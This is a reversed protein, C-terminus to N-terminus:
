RRIPMRPNWSQIPNLAMPNARNTNTTRVTCEMETSYSGLVTCSSPERYLVHEPDPAPESLASHDRVAQNSRLRPSATRHLWSLPM